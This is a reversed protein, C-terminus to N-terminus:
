IIFEIRIKTLAIQYHKILKKQTNLELYNDNCMNYEIFIKFIKKQLIYHM